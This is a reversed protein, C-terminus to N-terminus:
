PAEPTKPQQVVSAGGQLLFRQERLEYRFGGGRLSSGDETILVPAETFLVGQEHDYRVWDTEFQRGDDTHGVVNGTAYFDNTALDVESEDCRIEFGSREASPPVTARVTHLFALEADTDFRAKDAKLIVGEDADRTAVFTMGEVNLLPSDSAALPSGTALFALTTLLSVAIRRGSRELAHREEDTAEGSV